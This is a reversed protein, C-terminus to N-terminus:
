GADPRPALVDLVSEAAFRHWSAPRRLMAHGDGEVRRHVVRDAVPEARRAYALSLRPDTVRDATGHAIALRRGALQAVPEGAPLWPALAVVGRVQEHGAVRIATRAGMSHGVLATPVDFRGALRELAWAADAVPSEEAGNWGRVSFQLSAVVLGHGGLRARIARALVAVRLVALQWAGVPETSSVRGGHMVLVVGRVPARRPAHLGLRRGSLASWRM